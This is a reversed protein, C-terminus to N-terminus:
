AKLKQFYYNIVFLWKRSFLFILNLIKVKYVLFINLHYEYRM